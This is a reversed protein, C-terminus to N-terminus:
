ARGVPSVSGMINAWLQEWRGRTQTLARVRLVASASTHKWRMGSNCLRQKVLTKCAAETVGSGIPWNEKVAKPYRMLSHNNKLYSVAKYRKEVLSATKKPLEASELLSLLRQATGQRHKLRHLWDELWIKRQGENDPFLAHSADSVYESLHYFDLIQFSTHRKLFLWNERAGDAVGIYDAEPYLAKVKQIEQELRSLFASKGYEPAAATYITHLRSGRDDYLSLTGCMAERWGDDCLLMCTGDLGIAVSSVPVDFEPLDYGTDEYAEALVGVDDSLRKIYSRALKRSHNAKLDEEVAPAAMKSYKWAVMKALKPTASGIIGASLDLPSLTVGGGSGQYVAREVSVAGYPTEYCKAVQHKYSLKRGNVVIAAQGPIDDYLDLIEATGLKGAENLAQQLSDESALM